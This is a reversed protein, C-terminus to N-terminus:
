DRPVRGACKEIKDLTSLFRDLEGLSISDKIDSQSEEWLLHGAKMIKRGDPTERVIRERIDDGPEIEVYGKRELVRINRGLTSRDLKNAVALGGFSIPALKLVSSLLSYQTINLGSAALVDDYLKTVARTARRLRICICAPQVSINADQESRNKEM